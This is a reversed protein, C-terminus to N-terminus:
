NLYAVNRHNVKIYGTTSSSIPASLQSYLPHIGDDPIQPALQTATCKHKQHIFDRLHSPCLGSVCGKFKIARKLLGLWIFPSSYLFSVPNSM